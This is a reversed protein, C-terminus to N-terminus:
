AQPPQRVHFLRGAIGPSADRLRQALDTLKEIRWGTAEVESSHLRM